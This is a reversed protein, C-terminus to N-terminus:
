TRIFEIIEEKQAYADQVGMEIMAKTYAPEFLLYSPMRWEKGWGGITKLLGRVSRPIESAYKETVTRVDLSPKVLLTDVPKLQTKSKQEKTMLSLTHNIRKLRSLDSMLTDMFITDLLYGGLEGLSPYDKATTPPSIASEDRTGIILIKEAGLHIAPSLPATM